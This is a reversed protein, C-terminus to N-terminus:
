DRDEDEERRPRSGDLVIGCKRGKKTQYKDSYGKRSAYFQEHIWWFDEDDCFYDQEEETLLSLVRCWSRVPTGCLEHLPTKEDKEKEETPLTWVLTM